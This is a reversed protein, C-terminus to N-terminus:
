VTKIWNLGYGSLQNGAEATDILRMDYLLRELSGMRPSSWVPPFLGILQIMRDEITFRHTARTGNGLKRTAVKFHRNVINRNLFSYVFKGMTEEKQAKLNLFGNVVNGDREVRNSNMYEKASQIEDENNDFAKLLMKFGLASKNEPRDRKKYANRLEFEDEEIATIFNRLLVTEDTELKEITKDTFEKLVIPLYAEDQYSELFCLFADFILGCSFQWFENLMFFYWGYKTENEKLKQLYCEDLFGQWDYNNENKEAYRLLELITNKRNWSFSEEVEAEPHDKDLFIKMYAKWEDTSYDVRDIYFYSIFEKTQEPQLVGSKIVNYFSEKVEEPINKDFAQALQKGSVQQQPTEDTVRFIEAGRQDRYRAILNMSNMAGFYNTGFVGGSTKWYTSSSGSDLDAGAILDFSDPSKEVLNAAFSSGPIQLINPRESKMIISIMLEARRIFRNQEKQNGKTEKQHYLDILWCYFGYYRMHDTNNTTGRTLAAYTTESTTQMGLPDLGGTINLSEGWFPYLGAGKTLVAM